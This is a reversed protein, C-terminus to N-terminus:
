ASIRDAGSARAAHLTSLIEQRVNDPVFAAEAANTQCQWFETATWGFQSVLREFESTVTTDSVTRGDTSVTVKSGNKLLRDIPHRALSHVARTQVNSRPCMELAISRSRLEDVLERQETVRAGHGIREAQLLNLAQWVSHANGAEGAHVTRRLGAERALQFATRHAEGDYRAEDGALDIACVKDSNDGALTAVANSTEKPQHRLCCVILGVRVGTASACSQLGSSVADLVQQLSLGARQHLQPAFRVEGYIIGDAALDEVFERAIRRLHDPQQMVEVALDIRRLYDALDGCLEPAVLCDRLASPLNLDLERGLDAVTAPRVSADLHCHLEIKPLSRFDIM